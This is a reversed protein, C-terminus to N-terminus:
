RTGSLLRSLEAILFEVDVAAIVDRNSRQYELLRIRGLGDKPVFLEELAATARLLRPHGAHAGAMRAAIQEDEPTLLGAIRYLDMAHHRGLDKDPDHIRDHLAGLKMLTYPFAGPVLVECAPLDGGAIPLRLRLPEREVGLADDAARAHLGHEGSLSVPGVRPGKRRVANEYPGLPGVMVDLIVETGLVRRRFKLWEVGSVVVFGITDLARRIRRVADANVIVEARLFLDIDQTTRAPPLRGIPLRTRTGTRRLHEQKLWLGLGGGLLLDARGGLAADLDHVTSLLADMLRICPM